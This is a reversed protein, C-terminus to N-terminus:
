KILHADSANRPGERGTYDGVDQLTWINDGAIGSTPRVRWRVSGDLSLVNQGAGGHAFSNSSAPDSLGLRAAVVDFMPMGNDFLPNDDSMIPLGAHDRLTPRVGAMNQSAFSVNRSELFDDHRAIQDAPMPVDESSPCIFVNPSRVHSQALLPYLHSRNHVVRVNPESTPKWSWQDPRWGVFPLSDGFVTAYAQMGAGIRALNQSCAIREGRERMHLVSPVGLGVALVIMAAAAAVERFSHLRLITGGNESEEVVRRLRREAPPGAARVRQKIRENLDAPPTITRAREAALGAFAASLVPSEDPAPSRAADGTRDAAPPADGVGHAALHREILMPDPNTDDLRSM